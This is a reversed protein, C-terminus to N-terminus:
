KHVTIDKNVGVDGLGGPNKLDILGKSVPIGTAAPVGALPRGLVPRAGHYSSGSRHTRGEMRQGIVIDSM